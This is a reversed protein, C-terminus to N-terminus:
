VPLQHIKKNRDSRNGPYKYGIEKTKHRLNTFIKSYFILYYPDHEQEHDLKIYKKVINLPFYLSLVWSKM